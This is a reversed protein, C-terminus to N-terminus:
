EWSWASSSSRQVKARAKTPDTRALGQRPTRMQAGIKDANAPTGHLNSSLNQAPTKSLANAPTNHLNPPPRNSQLGINVPTNHLSSSRNPGFSKKMAGVVPTNTLNSPNVPQPTDPHGTAGGSIVPPTHHPNAPRFSRQGSLSVPTHHHSGPRLSKNRRSTVPTAGLSTVPTTGLSSKRFINIRKSRQKHM